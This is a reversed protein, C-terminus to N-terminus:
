AVAEDHLKRIVRAPVGAVIVNPPVDATVVAGAAVVSGAGITIGPLVTVNAGLWCGTEIVVPATTMPGGRDHAPGMEHSTTLITTGPGIQVNDHLTIWDNLELHCNRNIWCGAGLTLNRPRSYHSGGRLGGGEGIRTGAARLLARRLARGFKDDGFWDTIRCVLNPLVWEWPGPNPPRTPRRGAFTLHKSSAQM